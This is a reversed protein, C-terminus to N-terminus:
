NGRDARLRKYSHPAGVKCKGLGRQYHVHLGKTGEM